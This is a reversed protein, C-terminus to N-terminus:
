QKVLRLGEIVSRCSICVPPSEGEWDDGSFLAGFYECSEQTTLGDIEPPRWGPTIECAACILFAGMCDEGVWAVIDDPIRKKKTKPM